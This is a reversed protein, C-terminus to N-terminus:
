KLGNLSKIEDVYPKIIAYSHDWAGKINTTNKNECKFDTNVKEEFDADYRENGISKRAVDEWDYDDPNPNLYYVFYAGDATDIRAYDGAKRAPDFMWKDIEIGYDSVSVALNAGYNEEVLYLAADKNAGEEIFMDRLADAMEKTETKSAEDADYNYLYECVVAQHTTIEFPLEEIYVICEYLLGPAMGIDGVAHEEGFIWDAVGPGFAESVYTYDVWWFETASEADYNQYNNHAEAFAYFSKLDRLANLESEQYDTEIPFIRVKAVQLHMKNANYYKTLEERTVANQYKELETVQVEAAYYAMVTHAAYMAHTIGEGVRAELYEEVTQGQGEASQRIAEDYEYIMRQFMGDSLQVKNAVAYEYAAFYFQMSEIADDTFKDAWTYNEEKSAPYKQSEPSANYDFGTTNAQGNKAMTLSDRTKASCSYNYYLEFRPRSVQYKGINMAVGYKKCAEQNDIEAQNLMEAVEKPMRLGRYDVYEYSDGEQVDVPKSKYTTAEKIVGANRSDIWPKIVFVSLLAIAAAVAVSVAAIIIIKKNKAKKEAAAESAKSKKTNMEKKKSM